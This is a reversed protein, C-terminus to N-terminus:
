QLNDKRPNLKSELAGLKRLLDTVLRMATVGSSQSAGDDHNNYSNYNNSNNNTITKTNLGNTENHRNKIANNNNVTNPDMIEQSPSDIIECSSIINDVSSTSAEFRNSIESKFEIGNSVVQDNDNTAMDSFISKSPNNITQQSPVQKTIRLEQRLDRAEEKLRQVLCELEEKEGLENELLVNREIQQNLQSELDELSAVLMRKARELDDNNQELERVYTTLKGNTEKCETLEKAFGNLRAQTDNVYSTHRTKIQENESELRNIITLSEVHKKELQKLQTDYELELERSSEQYEIYESQCEELKKRIFNIEDQPTAFKLEDSNHSEGTDATQLM